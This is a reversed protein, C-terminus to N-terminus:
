VTCQSCSEAVIQRVKVGVLPSRDRLLLELLITLTATACTLVRLGGHLSLSSGVPVSRRGELMRWLHVLLFVHATAQLKEAHDRSHLEDTHREPNPKRSLDTQTYFPTAKPLTGVLSYLSSNPIPMPKNYDQTQQTKFAGAMRDSSIATPSTDQAISTGNHGTQLPGRYGHRWNKRWPPEERIQGQIPTGDQGGSTSDDNAVPQAYTTHTTEALNYGANTEYKHTAAASPYPTRSGVSDTNGLMDPQYDLEGAANFTVGSEQEEKTYSAM